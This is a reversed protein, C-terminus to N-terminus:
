QSGHMRAFPRIEKMDEQRLNEKLKASPLGWGAILVLKQCLIYIYIMSPIKCLMDSM